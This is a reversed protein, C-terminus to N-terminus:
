FEADDSDIIIWVISSLTKIDKKRKKELTKQAPWTMM